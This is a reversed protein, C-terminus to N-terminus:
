NATPQRAALLNPVIPLDHNSDTLNLPNFRRPKCGSLGLRRMLRTIRM